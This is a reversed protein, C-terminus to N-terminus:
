HTDNKNGNILEEDYEEAINFYKKFIERAVPVSVSGGFGGNEVIVALALKPNDAPAYAVVWAHDEGQPNEATGTKAAVTIDKFKTRKATGYDVAAELAKHLQKWTNPNLEIKENEEPKHKYVTKKTISDKIEEVLYPKYSVGKNAVTAMLNAM